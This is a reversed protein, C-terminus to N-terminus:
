LQVAEGVLRFLTPGLVREDLEFAAQLHLHGVLAAVLAGLAALHFLYATARGYISCGGRSWGMMRMRPM